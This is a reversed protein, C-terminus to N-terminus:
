NELQRTSNKQRRIVTVMVIASISLSVDDSSTAEQPVLSDEQLPTAGLLSSSMLPTAEPFTNAITNAILPTAEPFTNAITNAILPTTRMLTSNTQPPIAGPLTTSILPVAGSLTTNIQPPTAGPLIDLMPPAAGSFTSNPQPYTAESLKHPPVSPFQNFGPPPM